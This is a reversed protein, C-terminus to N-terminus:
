REWKRHINKGTLYEALYEQESQGPTPCIEASVGIADLDMMTSYGSRCIIRKAGFLQAKIAAADMHPALTINGDTQTESNQPLGRIILTKENRGKQSDIVEKEFISRQPEPGSIIAVTDAQEDPSIACPEIDALRSLTGIFKCNGQLKHKHSLDGSIGDQERDPIWCEDYKRIIRGHIWRIIPEAWRFGKPTKIMVQHTIYISHAKRCWAGFRNDSIVTDIDREKVIKEIEKHEDTIKGLWGPLHKVIAWTQSNGKSYRLSIGNIEIFREIDIGQLEKILLVLSAGEAGVLVKKGRKVLEKIIPICRSAHGLGWNLPCVLVRDGKIDPINNTM